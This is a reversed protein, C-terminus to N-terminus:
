PRAHKAAAARRPAAVTKKTGMAKRPKPARATKVGPPKPQAPAPAATAAAADSVTGLWDALTKATVPGIKLPTFLIDYRPDRPM